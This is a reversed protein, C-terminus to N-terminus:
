QRNYVKKVIQLLKEKSMKFYNPIKNKGDTFAFNGLWQKYTHTFTSWQEMSLSVLQSSATTRQLMHASTLILYQHLIRKVKKKNQMSEFFPMIKELEITRQSKAGILGLIQVIKKLSTPNVLIKSEDNIIQDVQM